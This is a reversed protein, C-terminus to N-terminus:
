SEGVTQLELGFILCHEGKDYYDFLMGEERFGLRKYLKRASAFSVDSSTKVYLKRVALERVADISHKLLKAGIGRRRYKPDVHFFSEWLVGSWDDEDPAFGAVGVVIGEPAITAVFIRERPSAVRENDSFFQRYYRDAMEGDIKHHTSIIEVVRAVDPRTMERISIMGDREQVHLESPKLIESLRM